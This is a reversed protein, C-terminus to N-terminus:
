VEVYHFHFLINTKGIYLRSSYQQNFFAIMLIYVYFTIYFYNFLTTFFVVLMELMYMWILIEVM